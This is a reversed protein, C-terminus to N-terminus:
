VMADGKQRKSLDVWIESLDEQNRISIASNRNMFGIDFDTCIIDKRLQGRIATKLADRSVIKETDISRMTFIKAEKKGTKSVANLLVKDILSPGARAPVTLPTVLMQRPMPARLLPGPQGEPSMAAGNSVNVKARNDGIVSVIIGPWCPLETRNMNVGCVM